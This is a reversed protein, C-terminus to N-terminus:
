RRTWSLHTEALTTSRTAAADLSGVKGYAHLTDPIRM